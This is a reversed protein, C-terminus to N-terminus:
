LGVNKGVSYKKKWYQIKKHSKILDVYVGKSTRDKELEMNKLEFGIKTSSLEFGKTELTEKIQHIYVKEPEVQESSSIEIIAEIIRARVSEMSLQKRRAKALKEAYEEVLDKVGLKESLVILPMFIERTRGKLKTPAVLPCNQTLRFYLLQSRIRSGWAEDVDQLKPEAEEMDIIISRSDIAEDFSRSSAFAKFGFPDDYDIKTPDDKRCRAVLMGKKYGAAVLRYIQEGAEYKRSLQYQAQDILCTARFWHVQKRLVAPSIGVTAIAHYALENLVELARTKGSEIEGRFLIYPLSKWYDVLWTAMVWLALVNYEAEDKLVLHEKLCKSVEHFLWKIDVLDPESPLKWPIQWKGDAHLTKIESPFTAKFSKARCHPCLPPKKEDYDPAIEFCHTCKWEFVEGISWSEGDGEVKLM